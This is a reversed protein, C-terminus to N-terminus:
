LLTFETIAKPFKNFRQKTNLKQTTNNRQSIVLFHITYDRYITQHLLPNRNQYMIIIFFEIIILSQAFISQM